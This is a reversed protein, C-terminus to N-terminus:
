FKINRPAQSCFFLFFVAGGFQLGAFVPTARANLWSCEDGLWSIAQEQFKLHYKPYYKHHAVTSLDVAHSSFIAKSLITEVKVNPDMWSGLRDSQLPEFHFTGAGTM